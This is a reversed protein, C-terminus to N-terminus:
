SCSKAPSAMMHLLQIRMGSPLNVAGMDKGWKKSLQLALPSVLTMLWQPMARTPEWCCTRPMQRPSGWIVM